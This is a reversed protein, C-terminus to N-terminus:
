PLRPAFCGAAPPLPTQPSQGWRKAIKQFKSGFYDMKLCTEVSIRGLFRGFKYMITCRQILHLMKGILKNLYSYNTGLALLLPVFITWSPL